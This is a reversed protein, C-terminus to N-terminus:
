FLTILGLDEPTYRTDFSLELIMEKSAIISATPTFSVDYTALEQVNRTSVTVATGPPFFMFPYITLSDSWQSAGTTQTFLIEQAQPSSPM